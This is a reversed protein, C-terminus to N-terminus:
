AVLARRAREAFCLLSSMAGDGFAANNWFVRVLRGDRDTTVTAGVKAALAEIEKRDTM